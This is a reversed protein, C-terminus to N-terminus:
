TAKMGEQNILTDVRHITTGPVPVVAGVPQMSGDMGFQIIGVQSVALYDATVYYPEECHVQVRFTHQGETDAM